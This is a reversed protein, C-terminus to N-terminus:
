EVTRLVARQPKWPERRKEQFTAKYNHRNGEDKRELIQLSAVSTHNEKDHTNNQPAPVFTAIYDLCWQYACESEFSLVKM